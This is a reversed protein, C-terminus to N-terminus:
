RETIRIQANNLMIPFYNLGLEELYPNTRFQESLLPDESTAQFFEIQIQPNYGVTLAELVKRHFTQRNVEFFCDNYLHWTGDDNKIFIGFSTVTNKQLTAVCNYRYSILRYYKQIPAFGLNLNDIRVLKNNESFFQNTRISSKIRRGDYYTFDDDFRYIKNINWSIFFYRNQFRFIDDALFRADQGKYRDVVYFSDHTDLNVLISFNFGTNGGFNILGFEQGSSGYATFTINNFDYLNTFLYNLNGKTIPTPQTNNGHWIYVQYQKDDSDGLFFLKGNFKVITNRLSTGVEQLMNPYRAIPQTAAVSYWTEICRTGIVHLLRNIRKVSIINCPWSQIRLEPSMTVNSINLPDDLIPNGNADSGIGDLVYMGGTADDVVIIHTDLYELQAPNIMHIITNLPVDPDNDINSLPNVNPPTLGTSFNSANYPFQEFIVNQNIQGDPLYSIYLLYLGGVSGDTIFIVGVENEIMSYGTSNPRYPTANPYLPNRVNEFFLKPIPQTFDDTVKNYELIIIGSQDAIITFRENQTILRALYKGTSFSQNAMSEYGWVTRMQGNENLFMNFVGHGSELNFQHYINGQFLDFPKNQIEM